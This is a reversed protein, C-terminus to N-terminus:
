PMQTLCLVATGPWPVLIQFFLHFVMTTSWAERAVSPMKEPASPTYLMSLGSGVLPLRLYLVNKKVYIWKEQIIIGAILCYTHDIFCIFCLLDLNQGPFPPILVLHVWGIWAPPCSCTRRSIRTGTYCWVECWWILYGPNWAPSQGLSCIWVTLKFKVKHPVLLVMLSLQSQKSYFIINYLDNYFWNYTRLVISLTHWLPCYLFSIAYWSRSGTSCHPPM